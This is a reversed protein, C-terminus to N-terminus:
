SALRAPERCTFGFRSLARRVCPLGHFVRRVRGAMLYNDLALVAAGADIGVMDRGVWGRDLNVNSLGYRGTAGLPRDRAAGHLNRLVADPHHAVSALTATLHATGDVDAGPAYARYTDPEPPDGPGDGASLGWFRRYTVFEAAAERCVEENALTAVRAEAWLDIDGPARCASLDLLDLGYQFVFLGLDASNFRRGAATGYFPRLARWSTAPLAKGGDAGGALVYMFATEGNLRDWCCPFLRGDQGQGHRLLGAGPAGEPAAWYAWDVRDYLRGALAELAADRLFAASWMAGALLWATEVTSLRDDGTSERTRSHVFHPVVGHDHPLDHLATRLGAAIRLSAERVTLLRYPPASALATAIFGMGSAALSCQGQARRPGRNAQRDLVLGCPLQNDLFYRLARHQLAALLARDGPGLDEPAAAAASPHNAVLHARASEQDTLPSPVAGGPPPSM